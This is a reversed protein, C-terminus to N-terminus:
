ASMPAEPSSEPLDVPSVQAIFDDVFALLRTLAARARVDDFEILGSPLRASQAAAMEDRLRVLLRMVDEAMPNEVDPLEPPTPMPVARPHTEPFDMQPQSVVWDLYLGLDAIYTRLRGLDAASYSTVNASLSKVTEVIIRNVRSVFGLVDDNYIATDPM